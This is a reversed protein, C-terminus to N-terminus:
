QRKGSFASGPLRSWSDLADVKKQKYNKPKKGAAIRQENKRQQDAKKKAKAKAQKEKLRVRKLIRKEEQRKATEAMMKLTSIENTM